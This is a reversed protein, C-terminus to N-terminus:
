KRAILFVLVVGNVVVLFLFGAVLGIMWIIEYDVDLFTTLNSVKKGNLDCYGYSGDRKTYRLIDSNIMHLMSGEKKFVQEGNKFVYYIYNDNSHKQYQTLLYDDYNEYTRIEYGKLLVKNTPTYVLKEGYGTPINWDEVAYGRTDVKGWPDPSYIHNSKWTVAGLILGLVFLISVVNVVALTGCGMLWKSQKSM